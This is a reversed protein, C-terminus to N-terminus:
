RNLLISKIRRKNIQYLTYSRLLKTKKRYHHNFIRIHYNMNITDSWYFKYDQDGPLFDIENVDQELFHKIVHNSLILGIGYKPYDKSTASLYLYVKHAHKVSIAISVISGSIEMYSFQVRNSQELYSIIDRLFATENPNQFLSDPWRQQHLVSLRDWLADSYSANCVIRVTHERSLKREKREIEKIQNKDIKMEAYPQIKMYPSVSLPRTMVEFQEGLTQEVLATVPNRSQFSYLDIWDWEEQHTTFAKAIHKLLKIYHYERHLYFSNNEGTGSIICQLSRVSRWKLKQPMICLPALAVWRDQDTVVVVFLQAAPNIMHHLYAKMWEWTAFIEPQELHEILEKWQTEYQSLDERNRIVMMEM